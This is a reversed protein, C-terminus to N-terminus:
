EVVEKLMEMIEAEIKNNEKGMLSEHFLAHFNEKKSPNAGARKVPL